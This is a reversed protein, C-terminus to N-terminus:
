IDASQGVQDKRLLSLLRKPLKPQWLVWCEIFDGLIFSLICSEPLCIVYTHTHTHQQKWNQRVRKIFVQKM